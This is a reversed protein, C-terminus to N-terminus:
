RARDEKYYDCVATVIARGDMEEREGPLYLAVRLLRDPM